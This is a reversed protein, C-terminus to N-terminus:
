ALCRITVEAEFMSMPESAMIGTPVQLVSASTTSDYICSSGKADHLLFSASLLFEKIQMLVIHDCKSDVRATLNCGGALHGCSSFCFHNVDENPFNVALLHESLQSAEMASSDVANLERGTARLKKSNALVVLVRSGNVVPSILDQEACNSCAHVFDKCSCPRTLSFEHSSTSPLGLEICNSTFIDRGLFPDNALESSVEFLMKTRRIGKTTLYSVTM